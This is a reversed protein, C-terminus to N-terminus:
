SVLEPEDYYWKQDHPLQVLIQNSELWQRDAQSTNTDTDWENACLILAVQYVWVNYAYANCVSHGLTQEHSNAQFVERHKLVIDPRIEDFLIARHVHRNFGSLSPMVGIECAGCCVKLTEGPFLSLGKSTKGQVSPGVLVLFKFRGKVGYHRQDFQSLFENVVPHDRFPVQRERLMENVRIIEKRQQLHNEKNVIEQLDRIANCAGRDRSRLIDTEIEATVGKRNKWLDWIVKIGIPFDQLLSVHGHKQATTVLAVLFRLLSSFM